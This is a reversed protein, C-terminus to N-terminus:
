SFYSIVPYDLIGGPYVLLIGIIPCRETESVDSPVGGTIPANKLVPDLCRSETYSCHRYHPKTQTHVLPSM